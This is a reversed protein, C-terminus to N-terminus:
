KKFSVLEQVIEINRQPHRTIVKVNGVDPAFWFVVEQVPKGPDKPDIYLKKVVLCNNFKGGPVQVSADISEVTDQLIFGEAEQQWSAGKSIPFRLIYYKEQINPQNNNTSQRAFVYIGNDDKRLFSKTEQKLVNDPQYFSFVQPIVNIGRLQIPALNKKISKGSGIQDKSKLDFIKHQFEWVMGETLPLYSESAAGFGWLNLGFIFFLTLFPLMKKM